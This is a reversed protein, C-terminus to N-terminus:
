NHPKASLSFIFLKSSHAQDFPWVPHPNAKYSREKTKHGAHKMIKQAALKQMVLSHHNFLKGM